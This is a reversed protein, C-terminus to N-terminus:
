NIDINTRIRTLPTTPTRASELVVSSETTYERSCGKLTVQALMGRAAVWLFAPLAEVDQKAEEAVYILLKGASMNQQNRTVSSLGDMTEFALAKALIANNPCGITTLHQPHLFMHNPRGQLVMNGEPAPLAQFAAELTAVFMSSPVPCGSGTPLTWSLIQHTAVKPNLIEFPSKSLNGNVFVVLFDGALLHAHV